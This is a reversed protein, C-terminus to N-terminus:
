KLFALLFFDIMDADPVIYIIYCEGGAVDETCSYRDVIAFLSPLFYEKMLLILALVVYIIGLYYFTKIHFIIVGSIM